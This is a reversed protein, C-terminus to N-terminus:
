LSPAAPAAASATEAANENANAPRAPGGKRAHKMHLKWALGICNDGFSIAKRPIEYANSATNAAGRLCTLALRYGAAATLDRVRADYDGYPYCFDTVALGLTDELVAKSDRLERVLADDGLGSLHVHQWAHSGISVGQRALRRLCAAGMLPAATYSSDLWDAMGGLQGAVAFVTCPFGYHALVPWAFDAFNLYGDDFTLVVSHTPLAEGGFLGRYAQELSIVHYPGAHLWAMQARFRAIRCLVSKHGNSRVFAGVQHYMLVSVPPRGAAPAAFRDANM